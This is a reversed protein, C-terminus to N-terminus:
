NSHRQIKRSNAPQIPRANVPYLQEFTAIQAPSVEIPEAMLNWSVGESCPPTTLSGSYSFFSGSQPLLAAANVWQTSTNQGKQEPIQNWIAAIVPNTAGSKMLIGVVALQGSANQHVLHLEMAAAKGQVTHESPTHFHFQILQSTQGNITVTSGPQYNVQITHGNNVVVLPTPQYNFKINVPDGEIVSGVDIPSQEKGIECQAFEPTLLGWQTPNGAGGYGWHPQDEDAAPAPLSLLLGM